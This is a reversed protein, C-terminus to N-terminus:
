KARKKAEDWLETIDRLISPQLQFLDRPDRVYVYFVFNRSFNTLKVVEYEPKKLLKEAFREAVRGLVEETERMPVSYDFGIELGYRFLTSKEAGYRFTVIDRDLLRRNSIWVLNRGVTSIKTYNVSIERVIGEISDIRVYDGAQFPRSALIYLGAIMNGITQSSAFGIAAGSLASLAVLVDPSVGGIRLIIILAVLFIVLRGALLLSNGAHLPLDAKAIFGKIWRSLIREVLIATVAVATLWIATLLFPYQVFLEDLFLSLPM